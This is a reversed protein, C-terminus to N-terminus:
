KIKFPYEIKTLFLANGPVSAGAACRTRKKLLEEIWQAERRHTGVELLSGVMARVMNRLFRNASVTFVWRGTDKMAAFPQGAPCKKWYAETVTCVTTKNDSGVKQLSKFDHTGIFHQAALNMAEFDVEPAKVYFTFPSLFADPALSIFYQYTRSVADFRAHANEPVEFINHVRISIPLIANLKYLFDRKAAGRQPIQSLIQTHAVYNIANVCSDTRGAGVIKIEQKLLVSFAKELEAQVSSANQQTQWGCFGAGNYSLRIFYNM